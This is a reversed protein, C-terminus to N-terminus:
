SEALMAGLLDEVQTRDLRMLKLRNSLRERSLDLLLSKLGVSETIEVERYTLVILIPLATSRSRRALHHLLLLTGKDSWHVDDIVVLLPSVKSLDLFLRYVSEFMRQQESEPDLGPNSPIKPFRSSMSPALAILDALVMEPLHSVIEATLSDELLESLIQTFPAFPAGSGPYCEGILITSGTLEVHTTLERILRTKGIGPEGSVLLVQGSGTAAKQWISTARAFEQERGILRGRVLQDLAPRENVTATTRADRSELALALAERVAGASQPRNDPIKELLSFILEDLVAPAEENFTSPRVVPAYLHQSLVATPNEGEFPPKGAIMEFLIVGLAYLDSQASAPRGQILEPALYNFTGIIAGEQTVRTVNSMRALGFDMLKISGDQSIMVNSPKLDRHIIGQSHAEELGESIQSTIAITEEINKSKHQDLTKGVLLEMVVYPRDQEVGADYVSVINPHNLQAIAQAEIMLRRQSEDDDSAKTLLKIAVARQLVNDMAKFVQGM